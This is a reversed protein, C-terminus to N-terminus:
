RVENALERQGQVKRMSEGTLAIKHTNNVIRNPIADALTPDNMIEYQTNWVFSGGIVLSPLWQIRVIPAVSYSRHSGGLVISTLWGNRQFCHNM